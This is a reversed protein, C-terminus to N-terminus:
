EQRGDRRLLDTDQEQARDEAIQRDLDHEPATDPATEPAAPPPTPEQRPRIEDAQDAQDAKGTVPEIVHVRYIPEPLDMGAEELATKVQRIAEGRVKAFSHQQQDVWGYFRMQVSSDGLAELIATPEPDTQIGPISRLVEVGLRQAELLDEEVGVGVGFSFRRLPNRSYNLIVGKFVQANPIRLHNGDLTMLITARSTLRIVKGEHSDIVVHDDPGFPQRLSLLISAIYNEVLDRFAFGVAIGVVGATGLVAGVLATANLIELAILLGVLFIAVKVAQQLLDRAFPNLKLRDFPARWGGIWRALLAFIAVVLLAVGLLPLHAILEQVKELATDFTGDLRRAVDPTSM